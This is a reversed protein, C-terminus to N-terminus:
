ATIPTRVKSAARSGRNSRRAGIESGITNRAAPARVKAMTPGNGSGSGRSCWLKVSCRVSSHTIMESIPAPSASFRGIPQRRQDEVHRISPTAIGSVMIAM